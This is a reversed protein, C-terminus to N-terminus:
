IQNKEPRFYLVLEFFLYFILCFWIWGPQFNVVLSIHWLLFARVTTAISYSANKESKNKTFHAFLQGSVAVVTAFIFIVLAPINEVSLISFGSVAAVIVFIDGIWVSKDWGFKVPFTKYGTQKDASIDKLYGILVFNAYSFLTMLFALLVGSALLQKFSQGGSGLFGMVPLLMVIWGNYFPGAFWFNKKFYTYTALGAVSLICFVLNLPNYIIVPIGILVLGALSVSGLAKPSIEGKVLPRYSASISDTDVQFCDTLAQGFGYGLFFPLFLLVFKITTNEEMWGMAMGALGAAGSVFLLYPRMHIVLAKVFGLSFVPYYHNNKKM